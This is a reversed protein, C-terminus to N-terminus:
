FIRETQASYFLVSCCALFGGHLLLKCPLFRKLDVVTIVSCEKVHWLPTSRQACTFTVGWRTAFLHQLVAVCIVVFAEFKESGAATSSRESNGVKFCYRPVRVM